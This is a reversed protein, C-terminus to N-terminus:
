VACMVRLGSLTGPPLLGFEVLKQTEKTQLRQERTQLFARCDPNCLREIM